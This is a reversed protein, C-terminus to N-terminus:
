SCYIYDLEDSLSFMIVEYITWKVRLIFRKGPYSFVIPIKKQAIWQFIKITGGHKLYTNQLLVQLMWSSSPPLELFVVTKASSLNLGVGGATIGILAIKVQSECLM